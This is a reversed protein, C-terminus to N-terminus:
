VRVSNFDIAPRRTAAGAGCLLVTHRRGSSRILQQKITNLCRKGPERVTRYRPLPIVAASNAMATHHRSWTKKHESMEKRTGHYRPVTTTTYSPCQEGNSHSTQEMNKKHDSMEKRTGHYRPLPIVPASNAM